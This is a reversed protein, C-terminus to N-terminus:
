RRCCRLQEKNSHIRRRWTSGCWTQKLMGELGINGKGAVPLVYIVNQIKILQIGRKNDKTQSSSSSKPIKDSLLKTSLNSLDRFNTKSLNSSIGTNTSISHENRYSNTNQM